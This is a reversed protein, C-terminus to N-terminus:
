TGFYVHQGLVAPTCGTPAGIPVSGLPQGKTVVDIIHLKGDCGALFARDEVITPACRIQDDIERKWVVDGTKADLCYLTADQSGFLVHGQHFNPGGNIEAQAEYTWRLDSTEADLCVFRGDIDGIYVLGDQVAAASVFGAEGTFKWKVKGDALRIAFFTGDLDGLYVTEHDIVATAEFAGKPVRHKWVVQLQEPLESRAVGSGHTDGRFLPWASASAVPIDAQQNKEVAFSLAPVLLLLCGPLLRSVHNFLKKM